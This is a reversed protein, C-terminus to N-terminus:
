EVELAKDAIKSFPINKVGGVKLNRLISKRLGQLFHDMKLENTAVIHLAYQSLEDFKCIYEVM